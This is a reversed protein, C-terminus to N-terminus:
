IKRYKFKIKNSQVVKINGNTDICQISILKDKFETGFCGSNMQLGGGISGPICYMFEFGSIENELAYKSLKKQSCSSGAIITDAKLKSLTSFNSSLKIIVGEYIKDKFLVNSGMGLIFMKGRNNYLKLFEKLETLNKPKFFIKSKGGINFWNFKKIDFNFFLDADFKNKFDEIDKLEM